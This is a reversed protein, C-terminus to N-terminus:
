KGVKDGVKKIKLRCNCKDNENLFPNVYYVVFIEYFRYNFDIYDDFMIRTFKKVLEDDSAVEKHNFFITDSNKIKILENKSLYSAYRQNINITMDNMDFSDLDISAYLAMRKLIEEKNKSNLLVDDVTSKVTEEWRNDNTIHSHYIICGSLDMFMVIPIKYKSVLYNLNYNKDLNNYLFSESVFCISPYYKYIKEFNEYDNNLMTEFISESFSYFIEGGFDIKSNKYDCKDSTLYVKAYEILNLYHKKHIHNILEDVNLRDFKLNYQNGILVQYISSFDNLTMILKNEIELIRSYILCAALNFKKNNLKNALSIMDDYNLKLNKIISSIEKIFYYILNEFIYKDSSIIRGELNKEYKIQEILDVVYKNTFLINNKSKKILNNVKFEKNKFYEDYTKNIYKHSNLIITVRNLGLFDIIALYNDKETLDSEIILNEVEKNFKIWYDFDGSNELLLEFSLYYNNIVKYLEETENHEILYKISRMYLKKIYDELFYHDYIHKNNLTTGTKIRLSVEYFAAEFWNKPEYKMRYWKSDIPIYNKFATYRVMIGLLHNTFVTIDDTTEETIIKKQLKELTDILQILQDSYSSFVSDNKNKKIATKLHEFRVNIEQYIAKTLMNIDSFLFVRLALQFYVIIIRITFFATLLVLICNIKISFILFFIQIIIVCLFNIMSQLYKSNVYETLVSVSVKSVINMYKATIIGSLNALFMGILFGGVGLCALLYQYYNDTIFTLENLITSIIDMQRFNNNSLLINGLYNIICIILFINLTKKIIECFINKDIKIFRICDKIKLIINEIKILIKEVVSVRKFHLKARNFSYKKFM